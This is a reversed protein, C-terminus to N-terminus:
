REARDDLADSLINRARAQEAVLAQIERARAAREHAPLSAVETRLRALAHDIADVRKQASAPTVPLLHIRLRHLWNLM